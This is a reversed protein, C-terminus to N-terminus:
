FSREKAFYLLTTCIDFQASMIPIDHLKLHIVRSTRQWNLETMEAMWVCGEGVPTMQIYASSRSNCEANRTRLWLKFQSLLNDM